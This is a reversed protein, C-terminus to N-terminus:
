PENPPTMVRRFQSRMCRSSRSFCSGTFSVDELLVEFSLDAEGGGALSVCLGTWGSRRLGLLFLPAEPRLGFDADALRRSGPSSSFLRLSSAQCRLLLGSFSSASITLPHSLTFRCWPPPPLCDAPWAVGVGPIRLELVWFHAVPHKPLLLGRTRIGGDRSFICTLREHRLRQLAELIM